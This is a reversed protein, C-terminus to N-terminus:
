SICTPRAHPGFTDTVSLFRKVFFLSSSCGRSSDMNILHLSNFDLIFNTRSLFDLGLLIDYPFNNLVGCRGKLKKELIETEVECAVPVRFTEGSVVTVLPGECSFVPFRCKDVFCQSLFTLTSGSDVVAQAPRGEVLAECLLSGVVNISFIPM